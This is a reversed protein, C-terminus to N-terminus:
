TLPLRWRAPALCEGHPGRPELLVACGRWEGGHPYPDFNSSALVEVFPAIDAFDVQGDANCDAGSIRDCAPYRPIYEDPDSLALVFLPIDDFNVVTDCNLDGRPYVKLGLSHWSGASIAVFCKNPLPV